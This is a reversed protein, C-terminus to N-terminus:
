VGVLFRDVGLASTALNLQFGTTAATVTTQALDEGRVLARDTLDVAYAGGNFTIRSSVQAYITGTATPRFPEGTFQKQTANLTTMGAFFVAPAGRDVAFPANSRYLGLSTALGYWIGTPDTLVSTVAYPSGEAVSTPYTTAIGMPQLTAELVTRQGDVIEVNDFRLGASVSVAADPNVAASDGA